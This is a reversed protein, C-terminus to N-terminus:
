RKKLLLHNQECFFANSSFPIKPLTGSQWFFYQILQNFSLGRLPFHSWREDMLGRIWWSEFTANGFFTGARVIRLLLVLFRTKKTLFAEHIVLFRCRGMTSSRNEREKEWCFHCFLSNSVFRAITSGIIFRLSIAETRISDEFDDKDRELITM